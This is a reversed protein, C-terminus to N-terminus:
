VGILKDAAEQLQKIDHIEELYVMPVNYKFCLEKLQEVPTAIDMSSGTQPDNYRMKPFVIIGRPLSDEKETTSEILGVEKKANTKRLLFNGIQRILSKQGVAGESSNQLKDIPQPVNQSLRGFFADEVLDYNRLVKVNADEVGRTKLYSEFENAINFAGSHRNGFIEIRSSPQLQKENDEVSIESSLASEQNNITQIENNKIM